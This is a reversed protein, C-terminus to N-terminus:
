EVEHEEIYNQLEELINMLKDHSKEIKENINEMTEKNIEKEKKTSLEEGAKPMVKNILKMEGESGTLWAEDSEKAFKKVKQIKEPHTEDELYYKVIDDIKNSTRFLGEFTELNFGTKELVRSELEEHFNEKAPTPPM